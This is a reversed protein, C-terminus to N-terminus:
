FRVENDGTELAVHYSRKIRPLLKRIPTRYIEIFAYVGAYVRPIWERTAFRDLLKLSIDSCQFGVELDECFSCMTMGFLSFGYASVATLGHRVSLQVLRTSVFGALWPRHSFAPQFLIHLIQMAAIKNKDSMTPLRVIDQTSKGKLMRKTRACDRRLLRPNTSTSLPEGLQELITLGLVITEEPCQRTGLMSMQTAYVPVKDLLTRGYQLVVGVCKEVLDADNMAYAMEAGCTYLKLAFDFDERWCTRPDDILHLAVLFSKHASQFSAMLAAKTAAACCLRAATYREDKDTMASAAHEILSALTLLHESETERDRYFRLLRRSMRLNYEAWEDAPILSLAANKTSDDTFLFRGEINKRDVLIGQEFAEDILDDVDCRLYAQLAEKNLRDGLCSATMLLDVAPRSLRRIRGALLETISTVDQIAAAAASQEFIWEDDEYHLINLAGMELVLDVVFHPNGQSKSCVIEVLAAPINQTPVQLMDSLLNEVSANPLNGLLVNTGIIDWDEVIGLLRSRTHLWESSLQDDPIDNRYTIVWLINKDETASILSTNWWLVLADSFCMDDLWVVYPGDSCDALIGFFQVFADYRQGAITHDTLDDGAEVGTLEQLGGPLRALLRRHTLTLGHVARQVRDYTGASRLGNVLNNYADFLGPAITLGHNSDFKWHLIPACDSIAATMITSNVLESKGVGSPGEVFVVHPRTKNTAHKTAEYADLLQHIENCRGHLQTPRRIYPSNVSQHQRDPQHQQQQHHHHDMPEKHEPPHISGDHNVMEAIPVNSELLCSSPSSPSRTAPTAKVIVPQEEPPGSQEPMPLHLEKNEVTELDQRQKGVPSAPMRSATAFMPTQSDM